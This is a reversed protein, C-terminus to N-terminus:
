VTSTFIGRGIAMIGALILALSLAVGALQRGHSRTEPEMRRLRVSTFHAAIAAGAMMGIHGLLAPYFPRLFLLALGLLVQVDLVGVYGRLLRASTADYPRKRALQILAHAVVLIAVLLVLYRLGSHAAYLVNMRAM